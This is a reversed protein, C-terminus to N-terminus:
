SFRRSYSRLTLSITSCDHASCPSSPAHPPCRSTAGGQHLRRRARHLRRDHRRDLSPPPTSRARASSGVVSGGGRLGRPARRERSERSARRGRMSVHTTDLAEATPKRRGRGRAALRNYWLRSMAHWSSLEHRALRVYVGRRRRRLVGGDDADASETTRLGYVATAVSSTSTAVSWVGCLWVRETALGEADRRQRVVERAAGGVVM